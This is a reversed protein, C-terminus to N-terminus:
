DRGRRLNEKIAARINGIGLPCSFYCVLQKDRTSVWLAACKIGSFLLSPEDSWRIKSFLADRAMRSRGGAGLYLLQQCRPLQCPHVRAGPCRGSRVARGRRSAHGSLERRAGTLPRGAPAPGPPLSREPAPLPASPLRGPCLREGHPARPQEPAGPARPVVGAFLSWAGYVGDAGLM